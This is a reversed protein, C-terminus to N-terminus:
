EEEEIKKKQRNTDPPWLPNANEEAALAGVSLAAIWGPLLWCEVWKSAREIEAM